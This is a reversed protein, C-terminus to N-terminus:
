VELINWCKRCLYAFKTENFDMIGSCENCNAKWNKSDSLDKFLSPEAKTKFQASCLECEFSWRWIQKIKWHCKLCSQNELIHNIIHEYKEKQWEEPCSKSYKNGM